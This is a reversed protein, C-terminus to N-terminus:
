EPEAQNEESGPEQEVITADLVRKPPKHVFALLASAPLATESGDAKPLHVIIRGESGPALSFEAKERTKKWEEADMRAVLGDGRVVAFGVIKTTDVGSGALYKDISFRPKQPTYSQALVSDPLRKRKVSGTLKGDVYVRTGRLSEEPKTYPIGEFRRGAEDTFARAKSDFRPPQLELYVSMAVITDITTNVDIQADPWEVRAKGGDGRTFSFLLENRYKRLESGPIISARSRGGQLHLEKVKSLDVGVSELYEAIRYRPVERGDSLKQPRVSLTPPLEFYRLIGLPKGDAYVGADGFRKGRQGGGSGDGRGGGARPASSSSASVAPSISSGSAAVRAASATTVGPSPPDSTCSICLLVALFRFSRGQFFTSGPPVALTEPAIYTNVRM